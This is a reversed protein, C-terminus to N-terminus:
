LIAALEPPGCPYPYKFNSLEILFKNRGHVGDPDIKKSDQPVEKNNHEEKMLLFTGFTTKVAYIYYKISDRANFINTANGIKIRLVSVLQPELADNDEIVGLKVMIKRLLDSSRVLSEFGEVRLREFIKQEIQRHITSMQIGIHNCILNVKLDRETDCLAIISTCIGAVVDDKTNKIIEWFKELVKEAAHYFQMGQNFAVTINMIKQLIFQKRDRSYYQPIYNRLQLKFSNFEKKTIDSKDLLEQENIGRCNLKFYLYITIPVLKRVSRYKTGKQLCKRLKIFLKFVPGVETLSLGLTSLIRRIEYHASVRVREDNDRESDLKNLQNLHPSREACLREKTTGIQTRGKPAHHIVTEDYPHHYEMILRSLVIGCDGCVYGEPIKQINRSHCVDCSDIGRDEQSDIENRYRKIRNSAM